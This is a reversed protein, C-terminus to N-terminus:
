DIKQANEIKVDGVFPIKIYGNMLDNDFEFHFKIKAPMFTVKIVGELCNGTETVDSVTFDPFDLEGAGEVKADFSYEGNNDAIDLTIIGKFLTHDINSKWKGLGIM